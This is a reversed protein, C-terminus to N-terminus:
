INILEELNLEERNFFSFAGLIIDEPTLTEYHSLSEPTNTMVINFVRIKIYM